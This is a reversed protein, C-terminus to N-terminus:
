VFCSRQMFLYSLPNGPLLTIEIDTLDYRDKAEQPIPGFTIWALCQHMCLLAAVVVVYYRGAYTKYGSKVGASIIKQPQDPKQLTTNQVTEM